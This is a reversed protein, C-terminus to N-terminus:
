PLRMCSVVVVCYEAPCCSAYVLTRWQLMSYNHLLNKIVATHWSSSQPSDVVGATKLLDDHLVYALCSGNHIRCVQLLREVEEASGHRIAELLSANRHEQAVAKMAPQQQLAEAVFPLQLLQQQQNLDALLKIAVKGALRSDATDLHYDSLAPLAELVARAAAAAEDPDATWHMGTAVQLLQLWTNSKRSSPWVKHETLLQWAPILRGTGDRGSGSSSPIASSCGPAAAAAAAPTLMLADLVLQRTNGDVLLQRLVSLGDLLLQTSVSRGASMQRVPLIAAQVEDHVRFQM